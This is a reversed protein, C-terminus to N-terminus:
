LMKKTRCLCQHKFMKGKTVMMYALMLFPRFYANRDVSYVVTKENNIVQVTKNWFSYEALKDCLIVTEKEPINLCESLYEATYKGFIDGNSQVYVMLRFFNPNAFESFFESLLENEFLREALGDGDKVTVQFRFNENFTLFSTGENAIIEYLDLRSKRQNADVTDWESERNGDGNICGEFIVAATKFFMDFYKDKNNIKIETEESTLDYCLNQCYHYVFDLFEEETYAYINRETHCGFLEDTTVGLKDAIIPILCSDPVGGHEWKSVAQSTVGILAGLEDQKLGKKKRLEAIKTGINSGIFSTKAQLTMSEKKQDM